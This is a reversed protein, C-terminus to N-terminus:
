GVNFKVYSHLVMALQAGSFREIVRNGQAVLAAFLERDRTLSLLSLSHLSMAVDRSVCGSLHLMYKFGIVNNYRPELERSKEILQIRLVDYLYPHFYKLIAYSFMVESSLLMSLFLCVDVM